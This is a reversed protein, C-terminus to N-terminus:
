AVTAQPWTTRAQAYQPNKCGNQEGALKTVTKRSCGLASAIDAQVGRRDSVKRIAEALKARVEAQAPTPKGKIQVAATLTAIPLGSARELRSITLAPKMAPVVFGGEKASKRIHTSDTYLVRAVTDTLKPHEALIRAIAPALKFGVLWTQSHSLHYAPDNAVRYVDSM